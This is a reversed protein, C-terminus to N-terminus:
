TFLAHLGILEDIDDEAVELNQVIEVDVINLPTFKIEGEPILEHVIFRIISLWLIFLIISHKSSYIIQTNLRKCYM